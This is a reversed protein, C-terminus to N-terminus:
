GQQPLARGADIGYHSRMVGRQSKSGPRVSELHQSRSPRNDGARTLTQLCFGEHDCLLIRVTVDVMLAATQAAVSGFGCAGPTGPRAVRELVSTPRAEVGTKCRVIRLRNAWIKDSFKVAPRLSATGLNHLDNFLMPSTSKAHSKSTKECQCLFRRAICGPACYFQRM